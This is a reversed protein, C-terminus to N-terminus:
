PPLREEQGRRVSPRSGRDSRVADVILPVPHEEVLLLQLV